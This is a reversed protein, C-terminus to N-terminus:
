KLWTCLLICLQRGAVHAVLGPVRSGGSIASAGDCLKSTPERFSLYATRGSFDARAKPTESPVCEKCSCPGSHFHDRASDLGLVHRGANCGPSKLESKFGDSRAGDRECCPQESCGLRDASEKAPEDCCTVASGAGAACCGKSLCCSGLPALLFLAVHSFAACLSLGDMWCRTRCKGLM